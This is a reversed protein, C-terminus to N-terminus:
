PQGDGIRYGSAKGDPRKYEIAVWNGNGMQYFDSDGSRRVPVGLQSRLAGYSQGNAYDLTGLMELQQATLRRGTRDSWEANEPPQVRGFSVATQYSVPKYAQVIPQHRWRWRKGRRRAEASDADGIIAIAAVLLVPLFKVKFGKGQQGQLVKCHGDADSESKFWAIASGDSRIVAWQKLSQQYKNM